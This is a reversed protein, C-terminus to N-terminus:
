SIYAGHTRLRLLGGFVTEPCGGLEHEPLGGHTERPVSLALVHTGEYKKETPRGGPPLVPVQVHVKQRLRLVAYHQLRM